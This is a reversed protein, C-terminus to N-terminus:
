VQFSNLPLINPAEGKIHHSLMIDLEDFNYSIEANELHGFNTPTQPNSMKLTGRWFLQPNFTYNQNLQHVKIANSPDISNWFSPCQEMAIFIDVAKNKIQSFCNNDWPESPLDATFTSSTLGQYEEPGSGRIVIRGQEICVAWEISLPNLPLLHSASNMKEFSKLFIGQYNKM